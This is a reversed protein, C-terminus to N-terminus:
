APQPDPSTPWCRSRPSYSFHAASPRTLDHSHVAPRSSAARARDQAPKRPDQYGMRRTRKPRFSGKCAAHGLTASGAFPSPQITATPAVRPPLPADVKQTGHPPKQPPLALGRRGQLRAPIRLLRPPKATPRAGGLLARSGLAIIARCRDPRTESPKSVGDAPPAEVVGSRAENYPNLAIPSPIATSVPATLVHVRVRDFYGDEGCFSAGVVSSPDLEEVIESLEAPGVLRSRVGLSRQLAVNARLRELAQESHALFVYGCARFEPDVRPRLREEIELFFDLSERAM